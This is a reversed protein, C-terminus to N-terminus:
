IEFFIGLAFRPVLPPKGTILFLAVLAVRYDSGYAFVYEDTGDAREAIVEGNQSLTLSLSDDLVAVGNKSCVGNEM